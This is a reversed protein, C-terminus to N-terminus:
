TVMLKKNNLDRKILMKAMELDEPYDIEFCLNKDLFVPEIPHIFRNGSQYFQITKMAYFAGTELYTKQTKWIKDQRRLRQKTEDHGLGHFHIKEPTKGSQYHWLFHDFECVSVVSNIDPNDRMINYARNFHYLPTLPSTCQVMMVNDYSPCYEIAHMLADESSSTDSALETPRMLVEIKHSGEGDFSQVVSKIENCDTSVIIHEIQSLCLPELTYYILPKRLIKVINKKPIGKSGGRAPIVALMSM